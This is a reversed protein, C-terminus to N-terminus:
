LSGKMIKDLKCKISMDTIYGGADFVLGGIISKDIMWNAEIKSNMVDALKDTIKLKLSDDLEFASIVSVQRIGSQQRCLDVFESKIDGIICLENKEALLKLLNLTQSCVKDSFLDELVSYKANLDIVPSALVESLKESKSFIDEVKDFDDVVSDLMKLDNCLNNFIAKAYTKAEINM